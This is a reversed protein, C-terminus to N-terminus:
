WLSYNKHLIVATNLPVKVLSILDSDDLTFLLLSLIRSDYVADFILMYLGSLWETPVTSHVSAM